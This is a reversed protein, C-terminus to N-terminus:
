SHATDYNYVLIENGIKSTKEKNCNNMGYQLRWSKIRAWNYLQRIEECDDYTILFRHGTEKLVEALRVHDFRHLTGDKGYLREAKFYPPDLFIFVDEGPKAIVSEVDLNTIEVGSLAEPMAALREISSDTFRKTSAQTSFGGARTTGSFTVRNFFFFLRAKEFPDEVALKRTRHFYDKMAEASNLESKLAHLEQRLRLCQEADQSARWFEVLDTFKDNIWYTEAFARQKLYFFVSGGGVMPERYERAHRPLHKAIEKIARQKGGPYRLPSRYLTKKERTGISSM